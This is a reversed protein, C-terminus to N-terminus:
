VSRQLRFNNYRQIAKHKLVRGVGPPVWMVVAFVGAVTAVALMGFLANYMQTVSEPVTKGDKELEKKINIYIGVGLMTTVFMTACLVVIGTLVIDQRVHSSLGTIPKLNQAGHLNLKNHIFRSAM